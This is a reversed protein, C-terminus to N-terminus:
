QDALGEEIRQKLAALTDEPSQGALFMKEVEEQFAPQEITLFYQNCPIAQAVDLLEILPPAWEPMTGDSNLMNVASKFPVIKYNNYIDRISQEGMVCDKIFTVAGEINASHKPILIGGSWFLTNDYDGSPFPAVMIDDEPVGAQVARLVQAQWYIEMAVGGQQFTQSSGLPEASNAPLYPYLEQMLQFTKLAAPDDLNFVGEDTFIKETYTGMMPVFMRHSWPWDAGFCAVEDGYHAQITECYDLIEDWTKPPESSGLAEELMSPRYILGFVDTWLPVHYKKGDGSFTIERLVGDYIDDWFDQPFHDDLPELLGLQAMAGPEVFPTPGYVLDWSAEGDQAELQMKQTIAQWASEEGPIPLVEIDLEPHDAQCAAVQEDFPIGNTMYAYIGVRLKKPEMAPEEEPEEVEPEEVAPEEVVPEEAEPTQACGVAVFVLVLIILMTWVYKNFFKSM